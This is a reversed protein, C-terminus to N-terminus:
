CHAVDATPSSVALPVLGGRPIPIDAAMLCAGLECHEVQRVELGAARALAYKDENSPYPDCEHKLFWSLLVNKQDNQHNQRRSRKRSEHDPLADASAMDTSAARCWGDRSLQSQQLDHVTDLLIKEISQLKNRDV